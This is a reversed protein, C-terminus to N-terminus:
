YNPPTLAFVIIAEEVSDLNRYSHPELCSFTFSDGEEVEFTNTGITIEVRGKLILGGVDAAYSYPEGSSIGPAMHSLALELPGELSPSLLYDTFGEEYKIRRRNGKRVLYKNELNPGASGGAFFWSVNVDLARAITMLAKISPAAQNREIQSLYGVSLDVKAALKALSLGRAKRLARIEGGEFEPDPEGAQSGSAKSADPSNGIRLHDRSAM